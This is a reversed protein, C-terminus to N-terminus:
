RGTGGLQPDTFTGGASAGVTSNHMKSMRAMASAQAVVEGRAISKLLTVAEKWLAGAESMQKAADMLNDVADKQKPPVKPLESVGAIDDLFGGRMQHKLLGTENHWAKQGIGGLDNATDHLWLLSPAYTAFLSRAEKASKGGIQKQGFLPRDDEGSFAKMQKGFNDGLYKGTEGIMTGTWSKKDLAGGIQKAAESKAVTKVFEDTHGIANTLADIIAIFPGMVATSKGISTELDVFRANMIAIKNSPDALIDKQLGTIDDIKRYKERDRKYIEHNMILQKFLDDGTRALAKIGTNELLDAMDAKNLSQFKKEAEDTPVGPFMKELMRPMVRENMMKEPDAQFEKAWKISPTLTGPTTTPVAKEADQGSMLGLEVLSSLTKKSMRGQVLASHLTAQMSGVSGTRSGKGGYEGIQSALVAGVYEDSKGYRAGRSTTLAQNLQDPNVVRGTQIYAKAAMNATRIIEERMNKDSTDSIGRKEAIQLVTRALQKKEGHMEPFEKSLGEFTQNVLAMAGASQIAQNAKGFFGYSELIGELNQTKTTMPNQKAAEEAKVEALDLQAKSFGGTTKLGLMVRNYKLGESVSGAMIGAAGMGLAMHMPLGALPTAGMALGTLFQGGGGGHGFFGGMFGQNGGHGGGGGQGGGGGPGGPNWNGGRMNPPRLNRMRNSLNSVAASAATAQSEVARMEVASDALAMTSQLAARSVANLRADFNQLGQAATTSHTGMNRMATNSTQVGAALARVATSAVAAHGAMAMLNANVNGTMANLGTMATDAQQIVGILRKLPSSASDKLQFVSEVFYGGSM